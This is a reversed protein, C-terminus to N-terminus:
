KFCDKCVTNDLQSYGIYRPYCRAGCDAVPYGNKDFTKGDWNHVTKDLFGNRSTLGYRHNYVKGVM